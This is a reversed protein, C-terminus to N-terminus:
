GWLVSLAVADTRFNNGMPAMTPNHMPPTTITAAIAPNISTKLRRPEVLGDLTSSPRSLPSAGQAEVADNSLRGSFAGQISDSPVTYFPFPIEAHNQRHLSKYCALYLCM